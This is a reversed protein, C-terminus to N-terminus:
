QIGPMSVMLYSQNHHVLTLKKYSISQNIKKGDPESLSFFGNSRRGSIVCVRNEYRVTDMLRYGHIEKSAQAQRRIGYKNYTAMHLQRNNVRIKHILYVSGDCSVATPHGSICRADIYHAKHLGCQRRIANTIYGYTEKCLIRSGCIKKVEALIYPKMIGVATADKYSMGRRISTPLTILGKHYLEHCTKCLTVLNNPADGAIKRSQIHHVHLKTDKRSGNCALCTYGDRHLVYERTNQFGYQEGHAYDNGYLKPRNMDTAMLAQIDFQGVEVIVRCIPIIDCLRRIWYCHTDVKNRISPAIWGNHKNSIRNLSRQKRYRTHRARRNQRLAKRERIKRSVDDRIDVQAEFLVKSSSTASLGIHKSGTDVGLSVEQTYETTSYLLQITFPTYSVITAMKAKLLRRVHGLRNTPMLPIGTKGIVYVM